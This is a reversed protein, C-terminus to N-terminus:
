NVGLGCSVGTFLPKGGGKEEKERDVFFRGDPRL